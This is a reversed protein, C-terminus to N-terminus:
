LVNRFLVILMSILSIPLFIYLFISARNAIEELVKRMFGIRGSFFVFVIIFAVVPITLRILFAQPFEDRKEFQSAVYMWYGLGSIALATGRSTFKELFWKKPLVICLVILALLVVLSEFFNITVTYNLITFIEGIQLYFLWGSLKWLFWMATWTYVMISIVAFVQGLQGPKPVRKIINM